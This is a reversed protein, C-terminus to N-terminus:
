GHQGLEVSLSVEACEEQRFKWMLNTSNNDLDM